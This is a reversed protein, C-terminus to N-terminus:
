HRNHSATMARFIIARFTVAAPSLSQSWVGANAATRSRKSSGLKTGDDRKRKPRPRSLPRTGDRPSRQTKGPKTSPSSSDEEDEDSDDKSLRQSQQGSDGNKGEGTSKQGRKRSSFHEGVHDFRGSFGPRGKQENEFLKKCFKCWFFNPGVRCNELMAELKNQDEIPHNDQVHVRFKDQCYCIAECNEVNCKWLEMSHQTNEHRKWDNKSGFKKDCDPMTCEYPKLHRKEHKKLECKRQFTKTCQPCPHRPEQNAVQEIEAKSDVAEPSERRFGHQGLIGRSELRELFKKVDSLDVRCLSDVAQDVSWIGHSSIEEPEESVSVESDSKVSHDPPSQAQPHILAPKSCGDLPNFGVSDPGEIHTETPYPGPSQITQEQVPSPTSVSAKPEIFFQNQQVPSSSAIPAPPTQGLEIKGPYPTPQPTASHSHLNALGQQLNSSLSINEETRVEEVPELTGISHSAGPTPHWSPSYQSFDHMIGLRLQQRLEQSSGPQRFICQELYEDSLTEQHHVRKLHAKFNDARPWVKNKIRCNGIHCIYRNGSTQSDPHVSRKHRDLDNLTSFGETTRPCEQVDCKFPKKHRQDHKKMESKTRVTKGCIECRMNDIPIQDTWTRGLVSSDGSMVDSMSFQQEIVSSGITSQTDPGVTFSGECISDNAISHHGHYSEYGSDSPPMIESPVVDTRGAVIFQGNRPDPVMSQGGGDESGSVLHQQSNWPGDDANWRILPYKKPAHVEHPYDMNGQLGDPVAQPELEFQMDMPYDLHHMGAPGPATLSLHHDDM